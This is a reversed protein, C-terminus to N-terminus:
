IEWFGDDWFSIYLSSQRKKKRKKKKTGTETGTKHRGRRRRRGNSGGGMLSFGESSAEHVVELWVLRGKAREIKDRELIEM